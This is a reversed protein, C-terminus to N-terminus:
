AEVGGAPEVDVREELEEEAAAAAADGGLGLANETSLAVLTSGGLM